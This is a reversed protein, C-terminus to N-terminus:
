HIGLDGAEKRFRKIAARLAFTFAVVCVIEFIITQIRDKASLYPWVFYDIAACMIIATIVAIVFLKRRYEWDIIGKKEERKETVFFKEKKM